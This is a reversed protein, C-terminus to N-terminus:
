TDLNKEIYAALRKQTQGSEDLFELGYLQGRDDNWCRIVRCLRDNFVAEGNLTFSLKLRSGVGFQEKTRIRAGGGSLDIIRCNFARANGEFKVIAPLTIDIRKHKRMSVVPVQSLDLLSDVIRPDFKEPYKAYIEKILNLISEIGSYDTKKLINDMFNSFFVIRDAVGLQSAGHGQPYGTGDAHEHHNLIIQSVDVGFGLYERVIEAGVQPHNKIISKNNNLDKFYSNIFQNESRAKGIDHLLAAIGLSFLRGETFNLLKGLIVSLMAVKLSHSVFRNGMEVLAMIDMVARKNEGLETIMENVLSEIGKKKELITPKEDYITVFLSTARTLFREFLDLIKFKELRGGTAEPKLGADDM